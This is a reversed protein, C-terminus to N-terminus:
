ILDDAYYSAFNKHNEIVDLDQALKQIAEELYECPPQSM